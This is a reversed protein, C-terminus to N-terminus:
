GRGRAYWEAKPRQSKSADLYRLYISNQLMQRKTVSMEILMIDKLNMWIIDYTLIEMRKFDSLYETTHIIYAVNTNICEDTSPCKPQNWRKATTFLGALFIPTCIDRESVKLLKPIYSSALVPDYPLEKKKKKLKATRAYQKGTQYQMRKHKWWGCVLTWNRWMRLLMKYKRGKKLSSIQELTHLCMKFNWEDTSSCQTTEVREGTTFLAATFM